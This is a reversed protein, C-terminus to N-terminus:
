TSFLRDLLASADEPPGYLRDQYVTVLVKLHDPAGGEGWQELLVNGFRQDIPPRLAKIIPKLYYRDHQVGQGTIRRDALQLRYGEALVRDRLEDLLCRFLEESTGEPRAFMFGTAKEGTFHTSRGPLGARADRWDNGVSALLAKWAEGERLGSSREVFGTSRVLPEHLVHAGRVATPTVRGLIRDLWGM